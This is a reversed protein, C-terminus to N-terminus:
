MLHACTLLHCCTWFCALNNKQKFHNIRTSLIICCIYLLVFICFACICSLLLSNISSYLCAKLFGSAVEGCLLVFSVPSLAFFDDVQATDLYDIVQVEYLVTACPPIVPPSGMEGYAYRPQMLFRSFEGRRMTQLGLVLGWM